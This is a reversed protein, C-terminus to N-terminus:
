TLQEVLRNIFEYIVEGDDEFVDQLIGHIEIPVIDGSLGIDSKTYKFIGNGKYEPNNVESFDVSLLMDTGEFNVDTVVMKFYGDDYSALDGLETGMLDGEWKLSENFKLFNLIHRSKVM